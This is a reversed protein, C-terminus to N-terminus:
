GWLRSTDQMGGRGLQEPSKRGSLSGGPFLCGEVKPLRNAGSTSLRRKIVERKHQRNATQDGTSDGISNAVYEWM